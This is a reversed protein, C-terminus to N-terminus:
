RKLLFRLYPRNEAVEKNLSEKMRFAGGRLDYADLLELALSVSFSSEGRLKAARVLFRVAFSGRRAYSLYSPIKYTSGAVKRSRLEFSPKVAEIALRIVLKPDKDTRKKIEALLDFYYRNARSNPFLGNVLFVSFLPRLFEHTFKHSM